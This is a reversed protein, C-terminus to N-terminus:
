PLIGKMLSQDIFLYIGIDAEDKELLGLMGNWTGDELQNGWGKDKPPAIAYTFNMTESIINLLDMFMGKVHFQGTLPDEVISTIFPPEAM